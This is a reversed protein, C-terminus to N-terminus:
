GDKGDKARYKVVNICGGRVQLRTPITSKTVVLAKSKKKVCGKRKAM